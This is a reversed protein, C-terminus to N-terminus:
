KSCTHGDVLRIRCTRQYRMELVALGRLDAFHEPESADRRDPRYVFHEIYM